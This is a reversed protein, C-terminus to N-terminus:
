YDLWGMFWGAWKDIDAPDICGKHKCPPHSIGKFNGDGCILSIYDRPWALSKQLLRVELEAIQELLAVNDKLKLVMTSIS